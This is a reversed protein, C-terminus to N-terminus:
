RSFDSDNTLFQVIQERLLPVDETATVWIIEWNLVFYAHAAFNRLGIANRWKVDPYKARLEDTIHSSAEGIIMLKQLVASQRLEDKLFDSQEIGKLFRKVADAAEVIDGLYLTESRM